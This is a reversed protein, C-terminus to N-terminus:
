DLVNRLKPCDLTGGWFRILLWGFASIPSVLHLGLGVRILGSGQFFNALKM